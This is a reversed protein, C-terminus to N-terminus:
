AKTETTKTQERSESAVENPDRDDFPLQAMDEYLKKRKRSYVRIFVAVFFVFFFILAAIPWSLLDSGAFFREFM